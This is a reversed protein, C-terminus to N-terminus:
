NLPSKRQLDAHIGTPLAFSPSWIGGHTTFPTWAADILKHAVLVGSCYRLAFRADQAAEIRSNFTFERPSREVM